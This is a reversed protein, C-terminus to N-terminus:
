GRELIRKVGAATWTQAGRATPVARATLEDAVQRLSLGQDRLACTFPYLDEKRKNAAASRAQASARAGLHAVAGLNGRDGGLKRGRAKAAALAARTRQAILHREKEALAAYVHLMFPDVDPGLEAVVFPVRQSMLGSIFAVDRSLRDLKAVIIACRHTRAASLAARLEPRREIADDGKGTEVEVHEAVIQLGEVEAFRTIASRQADLGLGSRGQRATSVRLYAVIQKSM